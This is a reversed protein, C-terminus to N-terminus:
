VTQKAQDYLQLVSMFRKTLTEITDDNIIRYRENFKIQQSSDNISPRIILIVITSPYQQRIKEVIKPSWTELVLRSESTNIKHTQQVNKVYELINTDDCSDLSYTSFPGYKGYTELTMKQLQNMLTTKGVGPNGVILVLPYEVNSAKLTVAANTKSMQINKPAGKASM